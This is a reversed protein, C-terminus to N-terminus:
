RTARGNTVKKRKNTVQYGKTKTFKEAGFYYSKKGSSTGKKTKVTFIGRVSRKYCHTGEKEKFLGYM